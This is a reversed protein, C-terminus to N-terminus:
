AGYRLERRALFPERLSPRPATRAAERAAEARESAKAEYAAVDFATATFTANGRADFIHVGDPAVVVTINQIEGHFNVAATFTRTM